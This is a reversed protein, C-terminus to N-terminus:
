QAYVPSEPLNPRKNLRYINLLIIIHYVCWLINIFVPWTLNYWDAANVGIALINLALMINWPWLQWFNLRDAKGKPTVMFKAKRNFLGNFTALMFVPYCLSSMMIGYLISSPSYHRKKMTSYFLLMTMAYYPLFTLIYIEPRIFYSPVRFLLFIIPCIMLLFFAWGVLYYSASLSYEWWQLLSLSQPARWILKFLKRLVGTTGVAWRNQQKLYSPLSEPALGFALVKNLYFSHYGLAHLDISTSFDETVSTEDFGGVEKLAQTRILVNTGCCFMANQNSKAECISEYFISQQMAAGKAIPSVNINTYLQPTQVFAIKEHTEAVAVTETIFTSLPNQDADFIAIYKEKVQPLFLNITQAKSHTPRDIHWYHLGYKQCKKTAKPIRTTMRDM